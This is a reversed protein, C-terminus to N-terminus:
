APLLRWHVQPARRPVADEVVAAFALLRHEDWARGILQLGIPLGAPDYGCPVTVAPHGTLNSPFVFRMLASTLELDSEGHPIVDPRIAPATWATTPTVIADVDALIREFHSTMRTRVQQARVYDRATLERALALNMRTGFGLDKRHRAFFPDMSVGMESLITLAHGLRCLELEPIEIEVITAGRAALTKVMAKVSAVVAPQADQLWETYIGLRVGQLDGRDLAIPQPAPQHLTGPDRPDPGAMVAYAIALDAVTAALPGAHGISWCLPYAGAESIRSFTAKLGTVGCLAAPIRISGGGDAGVAIPCLGAAVAAGSGSSSGGTYRSVDYPNRPTGYHPNFGSTDIGIEHMNAKGFLVAGQARLRAVATADATAVQALFRTGATTAYGLVDLEDKVAVPVGDLPGLAAGAKHRATAAKAQAFADDRRAAVIARMKPSRREAEDLAAFLKEAVELPTTREERYARAFDGVTEFRFGTIERARALAALDTEAAAAATSMSAPRPLRPAVSPPEALAIKRFAAVGTDRILGPSLLARSASNELLAVAASLGAGTLRPAKASKLDYPM